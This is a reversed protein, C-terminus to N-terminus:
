GRQGRRALALHLREVVVQLGDVVRELARAGAGVRHGHLGLAHALERGELLVGRAGGGHYHVGGARLLALLQRVAEQGGTDGEDGVLVLPTRAAPAGRKASSNDAAGAAATTRSSTPPARSGTSM